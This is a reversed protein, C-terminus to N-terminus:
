SPLKSECRYLGYRASLGSDSGSALCDPQKAEEVGLVAACNAKISLGCVKAIAKNHAIGASCTYHLRKWVDERLDAMIEAGMCLAWDEWTDQHATDNAEESTVGEVGIPVVNGAKSWDISPAAPVPTDIGEPADAPVTALHPHRELLRDIVM